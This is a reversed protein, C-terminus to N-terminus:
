TGEERRSEADARCIARALPHRLICPQGDPSPARCDSDLWAAAEDLSLHEASLRLSSSDASVFAVAYNRSHSM